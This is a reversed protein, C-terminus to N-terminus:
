SAVHLQDLIAHLINTDIATAAVAKIASSMAGLTPTARGGLQQWYDVWPTATKDNPNYELFMTLLSVLLQNTAPTTASASLLLSTHNRESTYFSKIQRYLPSQELWPTESVAGMSQLEAVIQPWDRRLLDLPVSTELLRQARDLRTPIPGSFLTNLYLKRQHAITAPSLTDSYIPQFIWALTYTLVAENHYPTLGMFKRVTERLTPTAATASEM